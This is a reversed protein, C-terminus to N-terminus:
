HIEQGCLGCYSAGEIIEAGCHPCKTSTSQITPAKGDRLMNSLGLAVLMAKKGEYTITFKGKKSVDILIKYREQGFWYVAALAPSLPVLGAAVAKSGPRGDMAELTNDMQNLRYGLQTLRSCCLTM